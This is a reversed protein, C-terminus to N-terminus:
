RVREAEAPARLHSYIADVGHADYWMLMKHLSEEFPVVARWGFARETHTPDLVVVPVDDADVPRMEVRPPPTMGLYDAVADFIEKVSRGRGSSVNFAGGPAGDGLALDVLRVFDDIDLYDRVAETCFCGQGAKLRKYFTPIPGIALRPAVVNGIRLSVAPVSAMLAYQEGATKSIAYSGRPRLPADVPIPVRDAWGYCLVTQFYLLREARVAEAARVVNITGTVNTAADELWNEPDRYSAASHVVHSPRFRECLERVLAGDAISGEVVELREHGGAFVGPDSTAYNDVVLVQDGAALFREVLNSGLCGAGGTVLVRRLGM